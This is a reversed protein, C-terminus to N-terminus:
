ESARNERIMERVYSPTDALVAPIEKSHEYVLKWIAKSSMGSGRKSFERLFSEPVFSTIVRSGSLAPATPMPLSTLLRTGITRAAENAASPQMRYQDRLVQAIIREIKGSDLRIETM